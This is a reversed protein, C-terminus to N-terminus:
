QSKSQECAPINAKEAAMEKLESVCSSLKIGEIRHDVTQEWDKICICSM